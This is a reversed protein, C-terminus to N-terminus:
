KWEIRVTGGLASVWRIFTRLEMQEGPRSGTEYGCLRPQPIGAEMAFAYQKLGLAKRRWRLDAILARAPNRRDLAERDPQALTRPLATM